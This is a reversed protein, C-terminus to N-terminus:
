DNLLDAMYPKLIKRLKKKARFLRVRITNVNRDTIDAIEDYSLNDYERMIFLERDEESLLDLATKILNLLDDKEKRTERKVSMYDEYTVTRKKQKSANICLNRAITFLFAKVNEMAKADDASKHFRFFTEQFVDQADEKQGLFRRCFAFIKPAYRAYLETFAEEAEPAKEELVRYLEEDSLNEINREMELLLLLPFDM